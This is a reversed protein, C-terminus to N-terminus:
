ASQPPPKRYDGGTTNTSPPRYAASPPPLREENCWPVWRFIVRKVQGFDRWPGRLEMLGAKLPGDLAEATANDCSDAVSGVSAAAGGAPAGFRCTNGSSM